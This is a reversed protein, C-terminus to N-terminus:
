SVAVAVAADGDDDFHEIERARGNSHFIYFRRVSHKKRKLLQKTIANRQSLQDNFVNPLAFSFGKINITYLM